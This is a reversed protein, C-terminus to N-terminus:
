ESRTRRNYRDEETLKLPDKNQLVYDKYLKIEEPNPEIRQLLEIADLSLASNDLSNVAFIIDDLDIPIKRKCIAVNRLRHLFNTVPNSYYKM